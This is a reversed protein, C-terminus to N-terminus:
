ASTALVNLVSGKGVPLNLGDAKLNYYMTTGGATPMRTNGLASWIVGGQNDLVQMSNITAGDEGVVEISLLRSGFFMDGLSQGNVVSTMATATNDATTQVSFLETGKSTTVWALVSTDNATADVAMPYFTIIDNPNVTYPAIMCSKYCSNGVKSGWGRRQVQLTQANQIRWAMAGATYTACVNNIQAGPILIGLSQSSLSDLGVNGDWKDDTATDTFIKSFTPGGVTATVAQTTM